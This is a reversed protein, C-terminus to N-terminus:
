MRMQVSLLVSLDIDNLVRNTASGMKLLYDTLYGGHQGRHNVM